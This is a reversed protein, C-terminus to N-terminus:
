FTNIRGLFAILLGYHQHDFAFAIRPLNLLDPEDSEEPLPGSRKILTGARRIEPFENSLTEIQDDTLDKTLRVVLTGNVFRLSHYIRYFSEIANIAEEVSRSISFISFDEASILGKGLMSAKIFDFFRDWYGSDDDILVLPKPATKGTQILTFVEMAEDLTGFGGPFVAIADSEKVFAVKRNFFYKYTILRPNQAMVPNPNQEFPLRINVAFSNESGAGQNGAQMIGGGGGTITMFGRKVLERSFDVCKQYIPESPDTRASGFITVKKKQRYPAFVKNTYRMEKMTNNLMKLDALYDTEQGAKLASIIMERVFEPHHIGDAKRILEEIMQDLDGNGRTFSLEM